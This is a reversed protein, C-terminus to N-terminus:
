MDETVENIAELESPSFLRALNSATEGCALFMELAKRSDTDYGFDDCWDGFSRYEVCSADLTLSHLVDAVTPHVTRGRKDHTLGSGVEYAVNRWVDGRANTVTLSYTRGRTVYEPARGGSAINHKGSEWSNGGRFSDITITVIHSIENNQLKVSM